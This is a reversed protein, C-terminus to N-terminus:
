LPRDHDGWVLQRLQYPTRQTPDGMVELAYHQRASADDKRADEDSDYESDSAGTAVAQRLQALVSLAALCLAAAGLCYTGRSLTAVPRAGVTKASAGRRTSGQQLQVRRQQRRQLRSAPHLLQVHPCSRSLGGGDLVPLACHRPAGPAIGVRFICLESPLVLMRQKTLEAALLKRFLDDKLVRALAAASACDDVRVRVVAVVTPWALLDPGRGIRSLLPEGVVTGGTVSAALAARLATAMAVQRRAGFRAIVQRGVMASLEVAFRAPARTPVPTSATCNEGTHGASTGPPCLCQGPGTGAACGHLTRGGECRSCPNCGVFPAVSQALRLTQRASATAGAPQFRGAPCTACGLSTAYEGARQCACQGAHQGGCGVSRQPRVCHTNCRECTGAGTESAFRGASCATCAHQAAGRAFQGTRCVFCADRAASESRFRGPECSKCSGGGARRQFKGVPCATCRVARGGASYRGPRCPKCEGYFDYTGPTCRGRQRQQMAAKSTSTATTTATTTARPGGPAAAASSPSAAIARGSASERAAPAACFALATGPLLSSRLTACPLPGAVKILAAASAGLAIANRFLASAGVGRWDSPHKEFAICPGGCSPHEGHQTFSSMSCRAPLLEFTAFRCHEHLLCRAQCCAASACHAPLTALYPPAALANRTSHALIAWKRGHLPQASVVPPIVSVIRPQAVASGASVAARALVSCPDSGGQRSGPVILFHSVQSPPCLAGLVQVCCWLSLLLVM